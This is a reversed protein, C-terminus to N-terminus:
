ISCVQLRRTVAETLQSATIRREIDSLLTELADTLPGKVQAAQEKAKAEKRKRKADSKKSKEGPLGGGRTPDVGCKMAEKREKGRITFGLIVATQSNNATVGEHYSPLLPHWKIKEQSKKKDSISDPRDVQSDLDVQFALPGKTAAITRVNKHNQHQHVKNDKPDYAENKFKFVTKAQSMIDLLEKQFNAYESWRARMQTVLEDVRTDDSARRLVRAWGTADPSGNVVNPIGQRKSNWKANQDCAHWDPRGYLLNRVLVMDDDETREFGAIRAVYRKACRDLEEIDMQMQSIESPTLGIERKKHADFNTLMSKLGKLWKNSLEEPVMWFALHQPKIKNTTEPLSEVFNTVKNSFPDDLSAGNGQYTALDELTIWPVNCVIQGVACVLAGEPFRGSACPNYNFADM